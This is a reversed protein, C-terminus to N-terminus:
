NRFHLKSNFKFIELVHICVDYIKIKNSISFFFQAHYKLRPFKFLLTHKEDLAKRWPAIKLVAIFNSM